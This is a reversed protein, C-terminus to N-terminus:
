QEGRPINSLASILYRLEDDVDEPTAVTEAIIETIAKRYRERLRHTAVRIAGPTMGLRVAMQESESETDAAVLFRKLERFIPGRGSERYAQELEELARDLIGMAWQREFVEEPSRTSAPIRQHLNEADDADIRVHSVGGGRKLARNKAADNSVYRILATLLFTRFRGATPNAVQIYNKELSVLFFGQLLDGADDKSYGRARLFSYLPPWYSKYLSAMAEQAGDGQSAAKIVMSWRTEEFPM